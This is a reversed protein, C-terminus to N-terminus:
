KLIEELKKELLENSLIEPESAPREKQSEVKKNEPAPVPRERRDPRPRREEKEIPPTIILVRLISPDLQLAKQLPAIAQPDVEFVATVFVASTEKAIPYALRIKAPLSKEKIAAKAKALHSFFAELDEERRLLVSIEYVKTTEDM